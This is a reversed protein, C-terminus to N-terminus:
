LFELCLGYYGMHFAAFTSLSCNHNYDSVSDVDDLPDGLHTQLERVRSKLENKQTLLRHIYDVALTM